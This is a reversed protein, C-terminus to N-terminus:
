GRRPQAMHREEFDDTQGKEYAAGSPTQGARETRGDETLTALGDAGAILWMRDDAQMERLAATEKNTFPNWLGMGFPLASPSEGRDRLVRRLDPLTPRRELWVRARDMPAGIGAGQTLLAEPQGAFREFPLVNIEAQPVARAIDAIVDRWGRPSMAIRNLRDRSPVALGAAIGRAVVSCWYVELSRPSLLVRTVQGDFLGAIQSVRAHARPYLEAADMNGAITGILDADSVLLRRIGAARAQQLRTQVRRTAEAGQVQTPRAGFDASKPGWFLVGEAEFAPAHRDAYDQLSGFGTRHAGLHLTIEM